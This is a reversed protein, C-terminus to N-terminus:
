RKLLPYPNVPTGKWWQKLDVARAIAFHLHPTNAAANGTTGVIGIPQGQELAQGDVLGPAYADLHGYLLIFRGSSDAAYVMLGGPKSDFLKLVRGKAASLVPTGRPALIDLAEHSRTGGRLETYTDHLASAPLNGIPVALETRLVELDSSTSSGAAVDPASKGPLRTADIARQTLASDPIFAPVSDRVYIASDQAPMGHLAISPEAGDPPPRLSKDSIASSDAGNVPLATDARGGDSVKCGAVFAFILLASTTRAAHTRSNPM